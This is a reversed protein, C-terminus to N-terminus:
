RGGTVPKPRDEYKDYLETHKSTLDVPRGDIFEQLVHSRIDLIDGDTIALSASKGVEISGLHEEVGLIRAPYLTVAKLAEDKPLGFGGAVGAHFPLNRVNAADGRAGGSSIAFQVGAEHYRAPRAYALDYPDDPRSPMSLVDNVIVPVDHEALLEAVRWADGSDLLVIRLDQEAAWRVAEEVAKVGRTSVIVPIEGEVVPVLAELRLDTPHTAGGAAEAATARAYARADDLAENITEIQEQQQDDRGGGRGFGFFRRGRTWSPFDVHMAVPAASTMGEWTWGDLRMLASTGM